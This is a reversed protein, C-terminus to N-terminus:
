AGRWGTALELVWGSGCSGRPSPASLMWDLIRLASRVPEMRETSEDRLGEGIPILPMTISSVALVNRKILLSLVIRTM